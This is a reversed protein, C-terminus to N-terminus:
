MGDDPMGNVQSPWTCENVDKPQVYWQDTLYTNGSLLIGILPPFYVKRIWVQGGHTDIDIPLPKAVKMTNLKLCRIESTSVDPSTGSWWM